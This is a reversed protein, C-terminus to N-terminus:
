LDGKEHKAAQEREFKMLDRYEGPTVALEVSEIALPYAKTLASSGKYGENVFDMMKGARGDLIVWGRRPNGNTDHGANIKVAVWIRPSWEHPGTGHAM